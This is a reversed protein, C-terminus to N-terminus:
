QQPSLKYLTGTKICNVSEVVETGAFAWCSGCAGQDKVATVCSGDAWNKSGNPTATSSFVEADVQSAEIAKTTGMMKAIEAETYDSLKNHGAVHTSDSANNEKIYADAAAWREFRLAYEKATTYSKGHEAIFQMFEFQLQNANVAAIAATAIASKM